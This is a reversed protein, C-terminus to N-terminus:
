VDGLENAKTDFESDVLFNSFCPLCAIVFLALAGVGAVACLALVIYHWTM